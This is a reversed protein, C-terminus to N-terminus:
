FLFVQIQSLTQHLLLGGKEPSQFDQLPGRVLRKSAPRKFTKTELFNYVIRHLGKCVWSVNQCLSTKFRRLPRLARSINTQFRKLCNAIIQFSTFPRCVKLIAGCLCYGTKRLCSVPTKSDKWLAGLPGQFPRELNKPRRHFSTLPRQLTECVHRLPIKHGAM